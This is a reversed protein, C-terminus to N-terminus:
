MQLQYSLSAVPILVRYLRVIHRTILIPLSGPLVRLSGETSGRQECFQCVFRGPILGLGERHFAQFIERGTISDKGM